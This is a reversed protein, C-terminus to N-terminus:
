AATAVGRWRWLSAAVAAVLAGLVATFALGANELGLAGSAFGDGIVPIVLGAYMVVFYTSAVEGRLGPAARAVVATLGGGVALGQGAGSVIAALVLFAFSRLLFSAALLVLGAVLSICGAMLATRHSLRPTTVQGAASAFFLLAVVLGALAHSHVGLLQTAVSPAVAGFLGSVACGCFGAIAAQWFLGRIEAPVHLRALRLIVSSPKRRVTEPAIMLAALALALLGLDVAFPTRTPHPVWEDLSGSVLNGLGLGGLNMAVAISSAVERRGGPALDVLMATATGAFLGVSLGSLVRGVYLAPTGQATLFVVASTGSLLLGPILVPKRGVRDSVGGAVLLTVVVAIAYTSFVVTVAATSLGFQRQYLPFIPTPLTAGLAAVAFAFAVLALAVGTGERRLRAGGAADADPRLSRRWRRSRSCSRRASM